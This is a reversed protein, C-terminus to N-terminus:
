PSAPPTDTKPEGKSKPKPPPKVDKATKMEDKTADPKLAAANTDAGSKTAAGSADKAKPLHSIVYVAPAERVLTERLQQETAEAGATDGAKRQATALDWRCYLENRECKSLEAVATKMDKKAWAVYGRVASAVHQMDLNNPDAKAEDDVAAVLKDTDAAPKGTLAALRLVGIRAGREIGKKAGGSLTAARQQATAYWKAADAGKGAQALIHARDLASAAFAPVDKAAPDKDIADLAALAQPLKNDAFALWASDIMADLKENPNAAAKWQEIADNAGKFDGRYARALAIGQNAISFKPQAKFAASFSSEADALKGAQLQIEGLTDIPNPEGPMLEIQKKAAAIAPDWERKQAHAYALVNYGIAVDPKSKLAHEAHAIAQAPDRNNNAFNALQIDVRWAAPAGQLVTDLLEITKARDGDRNAQFSAIFQKETDPVTKSLSIAKAIEDAGPAGPTLMGLYAHAQAFSPDLEIAKKFHDIGEPGRAHDVLDRGKEFEKIADASASTVTVDTPTPPPEPKKAEVSKATQEAPKNEAKKNCAVGVLLAACLWTRKRM